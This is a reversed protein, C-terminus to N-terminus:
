FGLLSFFVEAAAETVFGGAKAGLSTSEQPAAAQSQSAVRKIDANLADLSVNETEFLSEPDHGQLLRALGMLLKTVQAAAAEDLFIVHRQNAPQSVQLTVERMDRQFVSMGKLSVYALFVPPAGFQQLHLGRMTFALVDEGAVLHPEALLAIVRENPALHMAARVKKLRADPIGPACQLADMTRRRHFYDKLQEQLRPSLAQSGNSRPLPPPGSPVTIPAFCVTCKGTRGAFEPNVKFTKGCACSFIIRTGSGNSESAVTSKAPVQLPQHCQTCTGQKGVYDNSVIYAKGCRCRFEIM